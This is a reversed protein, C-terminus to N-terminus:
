SRIGLFLLIGIPAFIYSVKSLFITANHFLIPITIFGFSLALINFFYFTIISFCFILILIRIRKENIVLINRNLMVKYIAWIILYAMSLFNFPKLIYFYIFIPEVIFYMGFYQKNILVYISYGVSITMLFAFAYAVFNLMRNRVPYEAKLDELTGIELIVKKVADPECIGESLLSEYKEKAGTKMRENLKKTEKSSIVGKFISDIYKYIEDM